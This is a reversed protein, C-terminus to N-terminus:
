GVQGAFISDVWVSLVKLQIVTSLSVDVESLKIRAAVPADPTSALSLSANESANCPTM